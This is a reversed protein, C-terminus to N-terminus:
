TGEGVRLRSDVREVGEVDGALRIARERAEYSAVRGHLIVRRNVTEVQLDYQGLVSDDVLTRQVSATIGRDTALQASSRSDSGLRTADNHGGGGLLM